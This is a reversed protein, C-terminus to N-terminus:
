WILAARAIGGLLLAALSLAEQNANGQAKVPSNLPPTLALEISANHIPLLTRERRYHSGVDPSANLGGNPDYTRTETHKMQKM